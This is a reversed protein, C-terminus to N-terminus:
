RAIVTGMAVKAPMFGSQTLLRRDTAGSCHAGPDTYHLLGVELSAAVVGAGKTADGRGGTQGIRREDGPQDVRHSSRAVAAPYQRGAQRSSM